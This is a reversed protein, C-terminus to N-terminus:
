VGGMQRGEYRVNGGHQNPIGWELGRHRLPDRLASTTQRHPQEHGGGTVLVSCQCRAIVHVPYM